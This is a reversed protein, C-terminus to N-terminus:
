SDYASNVGERYAADLEDWVSSDTNPQAPPQEPQEPQAVSARDKEIADESRLVAAEGNWEYRPIGDDTYLGGDFYHTQCLNYRDGTGEDIEIWDTLDTPTTYGGDCSVICGDADIKIYVKSKSIEFEM